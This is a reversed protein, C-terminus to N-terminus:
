APGRGHPNEPMGSRHFTSAFAESAGCFPGCGERPSTVKETAKEAVYYGSKTRVTLKRYTPAHADVRIVRYGGTAKANTPKYGISYQNRIDHAVTKSIQDVEDLTRPFFAIGGTKQALIQLARRARREKEGGLLGIAYVTPGGEEQL